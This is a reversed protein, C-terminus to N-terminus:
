IPLIFILVAISFFLMQIMHVCTIWTNCMIPIHGLYSAHANQCSSFLMQMDPLSLIYVALVCSNLMLTTSDSFITWLSFPVISIQFHLAMHCVYAKKKHSISKKQIFNFPSHLESIYQLLFSSCFFFEIFSMLSLLPALFIGWGLQPAQMSCLEFGSFLSKYRQSYLIYLSEAMGM